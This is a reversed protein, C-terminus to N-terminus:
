ARALEPEGLLRLARERDLYGVAAFVEWRGDVPSM